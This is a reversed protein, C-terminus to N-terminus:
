WYANTDGIMDALELPISRWKKCDDCKVWGAKSNIGASEDVKESTTNVDGETVGSSDDEGVVAHRSLSRTVDSPVIDCLHGM